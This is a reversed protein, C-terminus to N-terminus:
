GVEGIYEFYELSESPVYWFKRYTRPPRYLHFYAECHDFHLRRERDGFPYDLITVDTDMFDKPVIPNALFMYSAERFATGRLYADFNERRLLGLCSFSTFLEVAYDIKEYCSVPVLVFDYRDVFERDITPAAIVERMGAIKCDPFATGLYYYALLLQEPFDVLIQHCGPHDRYLLYSSAGFSSGVDLVHFGKALREGLVRNMLGLLYVHRFWRYTYLYGRYRYAHPNGISPCPYRELLEAYGHKELIGVCKRLMDRQGRLPGYLKSRLRWTNLDTRPLDNVYLQYRCFNSLSDMDLRGDQDFLRANGQKLQREWLATVNGDSESISGREALSSLEEELRGVLPRDGADDASAVANGSTNAQETM